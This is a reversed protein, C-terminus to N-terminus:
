KNKIKLDPMGAKSLDKGASSGRM